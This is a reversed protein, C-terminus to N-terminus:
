LLLCLSEDLESLFDLTQFSLPKDEGSSGTQSGSYYDIKHQPSLM